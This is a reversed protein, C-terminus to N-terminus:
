TRRRASQSAKGINAVPRVTNAPPVTSVASFRQTPGCQISSYRQFAGHKPVNHGSVQPYPPTQQARSAGFRKHHMATPRASVHPTAVAKPHTVAFVTQPRFTCLRLDSPTKAVIQQGAFGRLSGVPLPADQRGTQQATPPTLGGPPKSAVYGCNLPRNPCGHSVYALAWSMQQAAGMAWRPPWDRTTPPIQQRHRTQQTIRQRAVHESLGAWSYDTQACCIEHAMSQRATCWTQHESAIVVPWGDSTQRTARTEARFVSGRM